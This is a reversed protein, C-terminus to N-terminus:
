PGLQQDDVCRAHERVFNKYISWPWLERGHNPSTGFQAKEHVCNLTRTWPCIDRVYELSLIQWTWSGHTYNLSMTWPCPEHDNCISMNWPFLKHAHNRILAPNYVIVSMMSSRFKRWPGHANIKLTTWPCRKQCYNATEVWPSVEHSYDVYLTQVALIWAWPNHGFQKQVFDIGLIDLGMFWTCIIKPCLQHWFLMPGHIIDSNQLVLDISLTEMGM